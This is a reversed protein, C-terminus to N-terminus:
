NGYKAPLLQSSPFFSSGGSSNRRQSQTTLPNRSQNDLFRRLFHITHPRPSAEAKKGHGKENKMIAKNM